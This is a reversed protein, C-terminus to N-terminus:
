LAGMARQSFVKAWGHEGNEKHKEALKEAEAQSKSQAVRKMEETVEAM